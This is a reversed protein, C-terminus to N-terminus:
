LSEGAQGELNKSNKRKSVFLGPYTFYFYQSQCCTPYQQHIVPIAKFYVLIIPHERFVGTM